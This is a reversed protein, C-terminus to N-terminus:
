EKAHYSEEIKNNDIYDDMLELCSKFMQNDSKKFEEKLNSIFEENLNYGSIIVWWATNGVANVVEQNPHKLLKLINDLQEALTKEDNLMTNFTEIGTIVDISEESSLLKRAEELTYTIVEPGEYDEQLEEEIEEHLYLNDLMEEFSPYLEIIKEEDTQIFIIKPNEEEKYDLALWEHGDGSLLIINKRNIEWEKVYYDTEMIGEKEKIGLLHEILIYDDGEWRNLSIPLANYLLEGGNKKRLLEIYVKPLKVHFHKEALEIDKSTLNGLTYSSEDEKWITMGLNGRKFFNM